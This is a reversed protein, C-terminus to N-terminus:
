AVTKDATSNLRTRPNASVNWRCMAAVYAYDEVDNRVQRPLAISDNTKVVLSPRRFLRNALTLVRHLPRLKGTVVEHVVMHSQLQEGQRVVHTVLTGEPSESLRRERPVPTELVSKSLRLRNRSTDGRSPTVSGCRLGPPPAPCPDFPVAEVAAQGSFILLTYFHNTPSAGIGIKWGEM